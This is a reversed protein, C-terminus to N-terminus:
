PRTVRWRRMVPASSGHRGTAPGDLNQEDAALDVFAGPTAADLVVQIDSEAVLGATDIRPGTVPDGLAASLLALDASLATTIEM